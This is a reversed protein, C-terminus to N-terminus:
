DKLVRIQALSVPYLLFTYRVRFQKKGQRLWLLSPCRVGSPLNGPPPIAELGRDVEIYSLFPERIFFCYKEGHLLGTLM